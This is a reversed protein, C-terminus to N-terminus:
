PTLNVEQVQVSYQKFMKVIPGGIVWQEIAKVTQRYARGTCYRVCDARSEWTTEFVVMRGDEETLRQSSVFGADYFPLNAAHADLRNNIDRTADESIAEVILMRTYRSM